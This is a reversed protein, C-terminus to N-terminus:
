KLRIAWPEGRRTLAWDAVNADVLVDAAPRLEPVRGAPRLRRAIVKPQWRAMQMPQDALWTHLDTALAVVRAERKRQAEELKARGAELALKDAYAEVTLWLDPESARLENIRGRVWVPYWAAWAVLCDRDMDRAAEVLEQLDEHALSRLASVLEPRVADGREIPVKDGREIPVVSKTVNSRAVADLQALEWTVRARTVLTRADM